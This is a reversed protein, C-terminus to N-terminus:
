QKEPLSCKIRPEVLGYPKEKWEWGSLRYGKDGLNVEVELEESYFGKNLLPHGDKVEGDDSIVSGDVAYGLYGMNFVGKRIIPAEKTAGGGYRENRVVVYGDKNWRWHSVEWCGEYIDVGDKLWQPTNGANTFVSFVYDTAKGLVGTTAGVVKAATASLGLVASAKAVIFIGGAIALDVTVKRSFTDVKEDWYSVDGIKKCIELDQAGSTYYDERVVTGENSKASREEGTEGEIATVKAYYKGVDLNKPLSWRSIHVGESPLMDKLSDVIDDSTYWGCNKHIQGKIKMADRSLTYTVMAVGPNNTACDEAVSGDVTPKYDPNDWVPDYPWSGDKAPSEFKVSIELPPPPVVKVKALDKAGSAYHEATVSAGESTGGGLLPQGLLGFTKGGIENWSFCTRARSPVGSENMEYLEIGGSLTLRVLETDPLDKPECIIKVPMMNAIAFRTLERSYIVSPPSTEETGESAGGVSVDVAVVTFNTTCAATASQGGGNRVTASVTLPEELYSGSAGTEDNAGYTVDVGDRAGLFGCRGCRTWNYTVSMPAPDIKATATRTVVYKSMADTLDLGLYDPREISLEYVDAEATAHAHCECAPCADRKGTVNFCIAQGLGKTMTGTWTSSGLAPGDASATWEYRDPVVEEDWEECSSGPMSEGCACPSYRRTLHHLGKVVVRKSASASVVTGVEPVAYMAALRSPSAQAGIVIDRVHANDTVCPFVHIHQSDEQLRSTVDLGGVTGSSPDLTVSERGNVLWGSRATVRIPDASGVDYWIDGSETVGVGRGEVTVFSNAGGGGAGREGAVCSMGWM